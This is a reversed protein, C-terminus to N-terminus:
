NDHGRGSGWGVVEYSAIAGMGVLRRMLPEGVAASIWTGGPGWHDLDYAGLALEGNSAMQIHLIGKRMTRGDTLLDVLRQVVNPEVEFVAFDLIPYVTQRRLVQTPETTHPLAKLELDGLQGEVSLQSDTPFMRMAAELFASASRVDVHFIRPPHPIVPDVMKM